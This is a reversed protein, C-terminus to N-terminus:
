KVKHQIEAIFNTVCSLNTIAALKKYIRNDPSITALERLYKFDDAYSSNCHTTCL